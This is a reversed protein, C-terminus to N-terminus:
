RKRRDVAFGLLALAMVVLSASEPEPTQTATPVTLCAGGDTLSFVGCATMSLMEASGAPMQLGISFKGDLMPDFIPNATILPGYLLGGSTIILATDDRVQLLDVGSLDGYTRTTLQDGLNVPDAADFVVSWKIGTYPPTPTLSTLDFSFVMETSTLLIGARVPGCLLIALFAGAALKRVIQTM